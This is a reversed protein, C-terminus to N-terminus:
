ATEAIVVFGAHGCVESHDVCDGNADDGLTVTVKDGDQTAVEVIKGQVETNLSGARYVTIKKEVGEVVRLVSVTVNNPTVHTVQAPGTATYTCKGQVDTGGPAIACGTGADANASGSAFAMAVIAAGLIIKRM